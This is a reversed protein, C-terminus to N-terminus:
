ELRHMDLTRLLRHIGVPLARTSERSDREPRTSIATPTGALMGPMGSAGPLLASREPGGGQGRVGRRHHGPTTTMPRLGVLWPFRPACLAFFVHMRTIRLSPSESAREGM